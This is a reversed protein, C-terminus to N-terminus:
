THCSTFTPSRPDSRPLSASKSKRDRPRVAHGLTQRKRVAERSGGGTPPVARILDRSKATHTGYSYSLETTKIM